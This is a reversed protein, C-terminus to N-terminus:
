SPRDSWVLQSYWSAIIQGAEVVNSAQQNSSYLKARLDVGAGAFPVRAVTHSKTTLDELNGHDSSIVVKAGTSLIGALLADIRALYAKGAALVHPPTPTQGEHGILDSLWLDALLLDYQQATKGLLEGQTRIKDLTLLPTWPEKFDLGLSARILPVNPPNLAQGAALFSYPFCGLMSRKSTPQGQMIAQMDIHQNIYQFYQPAYYNALAIKAGAAALRVPLSARQLLRQLTPGPYPGFHEGQGNKGMLRVADTGTLWCAQGTGSQPLGEVNLTTDLALGADILPRLTPLDQEWVSGAPADSPHGVGDLALWILGM